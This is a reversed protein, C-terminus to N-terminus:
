FSGLGDVRPVHSMKGCWRSVRADSDGGESCRGVGSNLVYVGSSSVQYRNGWGPNSMYLPHHYRKPSITIHHYLITDSTKPNKPREYAKRPDHPTPFNDQAVPSRGTKM